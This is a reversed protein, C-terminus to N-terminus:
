FFVFIYNTISGASNTALVLFTFVAIVSLPLIQLPLIQKRFGKLFYVLWVATAFAMYPGFINPHILVGRLGRGLYADSPHVLIQLLSLVGIGLSSLRIFLNSQELSYVSGIHIALASTFVLALSYRVTTLPISSWTSSLVPLVLLAGLALDQKLLFGIVQGAFHRSYRNLIVGILIYFLLLAVANLSPYILWSLHMRSIPFTRTGPISVFITLVTFFHLLSSLKPNKTLKFALYFYSISTLIIIPLNLPDLIFDKM